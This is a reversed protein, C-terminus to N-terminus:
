KQEWEKIQKADNYLEVYSDFREKAIKGHNLAELVACGKEVTHSCGTFKCRNLYPEFERFCYQLKDKMIIEYKAMDMSGFGPTDAVYGNLEKIYYLEVHRTTHRGRGLKKSIHATELELTPYINNILSSKGVGTNGAFASISDRLYNKVEDFTDNELNSLTIVQFGAGEYIKKLESADKLDTKTIVIIPVIDKYECITILKDIVILSPAPELISTVIFLKDINAIPPRTFENKRKLVETVIGRNDDDIEFVVKDGVLPTTNDNRFIGRAKCEYVDMDCAVYYFGSIAKNIVGTKQQM